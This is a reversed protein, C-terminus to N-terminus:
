KGGRHSESRSSDSSDDTPEDKRRVTVMVNNKTKLPGTPIKVPRTNFWYQQVVMFLTTAVWYLGLAAPLSRAFVITMLPFIYMMQKQLAQTMDEGEKGGTTSKPMVLSMQRAQIFQLLGAIIPIVWVEPKSLDLNFWHTNIAEPRPTFSYLLSYQATNLGHIFVRYLTLLVPLQILMPLCGGVPSVKETAYLEMMAKSHAQKDHGHKEKLENLKPQLARIRQQQEWTKLSSPLLAIRIIITLAIIAWGISHGPILWALFILANFLPQYLITTFFQRIM